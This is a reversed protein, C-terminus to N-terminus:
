CVLFYYDYRPPPGGPPVTDPLYDEDNDFWEAHVHSHCGFTRADAQFGSRLRDEDNYFGAEVPGASAPAVLMLLTCCAAMLAFRM